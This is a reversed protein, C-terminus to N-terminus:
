LANLNGCLPRSNIPPACACDQSEQDGKVVKAATRIDMKTRGRIIVANLESAHRQAVHTRTYPASTRPQYYSLKTYQPQAAHMLVQDTQKALAECSGELICYHVKDSPAFDSCPLHLTTVSHQKESLLRQPPEDFPKGLAALQIGKLFSSGANVNIM